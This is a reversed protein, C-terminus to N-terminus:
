SLPLILQIISLKFPLCANENINCDKKFTEALLGDAKLDSVKLDCVRLSSIKEPLLTAPSSGRIM